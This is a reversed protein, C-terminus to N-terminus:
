LKLWMVNRYKLYGTSILISNFSGRLHLQEKLFVCHTGYNTSITYAPETFSFFYTHLLDVTIDILKHMPCYFCVFLCFFNSVPVTNSLLLLPCGLIDSSFMLPTITCNFKLISGENPWLKWENTQRSTKTSYM